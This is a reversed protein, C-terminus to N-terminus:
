DNSAERFNILNEIIDDESKEEFLLKMIDKHEKSDLLDEFLKLLPNEM